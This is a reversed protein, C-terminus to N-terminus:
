SLANIAPKIEISFNGDSFSLYNFTTFNGFYNRVM